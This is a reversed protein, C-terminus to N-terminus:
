AGEPEPDPTVAEVVKRPRGRRKVAEEVITEVSVPIFDVSKYTPADKPNFDEGVEDSWDDNLKADEEPSMVVVSTGDPGFRWAPYNIM